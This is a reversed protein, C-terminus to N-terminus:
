KKNDKAEKDLNQVDAREKYKEEMVQRAQTRAYMRDLKTKLVKVGKYHGCEKCVQHTSLPAQCTSCVTIAKVEVKKGSSRIDRRSKSVKRKPVPM